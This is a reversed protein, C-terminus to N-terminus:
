VVFWSFHSIKASVNAEFKVFEDFIPSEIVFENTLLVRSDNLDIFALGNSTRKVFM